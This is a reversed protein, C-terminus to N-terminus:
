KRRSENVAFEVKVNTTITKESGDDMRIRLTATDEFNGSVTRRKKVIGENWNSVNTINTTTCGTFDGDIRKYSKSNNLDIFNISGCGQMSEKPQHTGKSAEGMFYRNIYHIQFGDATMLKSANVNCAGEFFEINAQSAFNGKEPYFTHTGKLPGDSFTVTIFHKKNTTFCFATLICICLFLKKM